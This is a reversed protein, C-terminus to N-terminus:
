KAAIPKCPVNSISHRKVFARIKRAEISCVEGDKESREAESRAGMQIFKIAGDMYMHGLDEYMCLTATLEKASMDKLEALELPRCAADARSGIMVTLVVVLFAIAFRM